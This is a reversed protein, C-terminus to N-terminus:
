LRKWRGTGPDLEYFDRVVVRQRSRGYCRLRDLIGRREEPPLRRAEAAFTLELEYNRSFSGLRGLHHRAM